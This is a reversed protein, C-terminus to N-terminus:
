APLGGASVASSHSRQLPRGLRHPILPLAFNQVAMPAAGFGVKVDELFEPSVIDQVAKILKKPNTIANKEQWKYDLFTAEDVEKWAPINQWFADRRLNRWTIDEEAVKPRLHKIDADGGITVPTNDLQVDNMM